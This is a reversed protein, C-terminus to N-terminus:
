TGIGMMMRTPTAAAAVSFPYALGAGGNYLESIESSSLPRSWIGYEDHVCDGWGSGGIIGNIRVASTSNFISTGYGTGQVVFSGNKYIDVTGAAATYVCAWHYWTGTSMVSGTNLNQAVNANGNTSLGVRYLDNAGSNFMELSYARQTTGSWKMLIIVGQTALNSELNIWHSVTFNGSLDLGTQAGDTIEFFETNAQEFDRGNNIKGTASGVTNNDTLTNSGHADIANGSAEDFKYYSVLNDILAM